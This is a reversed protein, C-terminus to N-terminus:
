SRFLCEEKHENWDRVRCDNNHYKMRYCGTCTFYEKLDLKEKCYSCCHRQPKFNVYRNQLIRYKNFVVKKDDITEGDKNENESLKRTKLPLCSLQLIKGLLKQDFDIYESETEKIALICDGYIKKDGALKTATININNKLVCTKEFCSINFQLFPISFMTYPNTLHKITIENIDCEESLNCELPHKLFTFISSTNDTNIKIAQHVFKQYYIDVIDDLTINDNTCTGNDIILNNILVAAGLITEKGIVLESSIRNIDKAQTILTIKKSDNEIDPTAVFCIQYLNNIKEYCPLSEGIEDPTLGIEEVILDIMENCKTERIVIFEGIDKKLNQKNNYYLTKDFTFNNPKIIAVTCTEM